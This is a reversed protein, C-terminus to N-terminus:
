APRLSRLIAHRANENGTRGVAEPEHDAPIEGILAMLTDRKRAHRRNPRALRLLASLYGVGKAPQRLRRVRARASFSFLLHVFILRRALKSEHSSRSPWVAADPCDPPQFLPRLFTPFFTNSDATVRQFPGIGFLLLFRIRAMENEYTKAPKRPSAPFLRRPQLQLRAAATARSRYRPPLRLM